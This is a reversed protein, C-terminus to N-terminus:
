RQEPEPYPGGQHPWAASCSPEATDSGPSTGPLPATSRVREACRDSCVPVLRRWRPSSWSCGPSILGCGTEHGHRM